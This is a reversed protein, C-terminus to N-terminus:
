QETMRQARLFTILNTAKNKQTPMEHVPVGPSHLTRTQATTTHHKNAFAANLDVNHCNRIREMTAHAEGYTFDCDRYSIM